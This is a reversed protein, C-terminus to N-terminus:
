DGIPARRPFDDYEKQWRASVARHRMRTTSSLSFGVRAGSVHFLAESRATLTYQDQPWRVMRPLSELTISSGRGQSRSRQGRQSARPSCLTWQAGATRCDDRSPRSALRHPLDGVDGCLDCLPDAAVGAEQLRKPTWWRGEVLSAASAVAGQSQQKAWCSKIHSAMPKFWPVLTGGVELTSGAEQAVVAHGCTSTPQQQM